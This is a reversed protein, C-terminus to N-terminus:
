KICQEEFEEMIKVNRHCNQKVIWVKICKLLNIKIFEKKRSEQKIYINKKNM